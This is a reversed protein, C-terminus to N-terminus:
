VPDSPAIHFRAHSLCHLPEARQLVSSPPPQPDRPVAPMGLGWWCSQSVWHCDPSQKQVLKGWRLWVEAKQGRASLIVCLWGHLGVTQRQSKIQM